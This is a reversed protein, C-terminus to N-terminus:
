HQLFVKGQLPRSAFIRVTFEHGTTFRSDGVELNVLSVRSGGDGGELCGCACAGGDCQWM